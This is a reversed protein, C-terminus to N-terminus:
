WIKFLRSEHESTPIKGPNNNNNNTNNDHALGEPIHHISHRRRQPSPSAPPQPRM